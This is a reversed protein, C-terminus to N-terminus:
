GAYDADSVKELWVASRGEEDKEQMALHCMMTEPAAGHWHEEGAPIWVVDGARIERVPGGRSAFRGVGSLVYLTQGYPHTHWATRAGPTFTVRLAAIRAPPEASHVPDMWVTGTFYDPDRNITPRGARIIDAM